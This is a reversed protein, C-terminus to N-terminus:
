QPGTRAEGAHSRTEDNRIEHLEGSSLVGEASAEVPSGSVVIASTETSVPVGITSAGAVTSAVISQAGSAPRVL